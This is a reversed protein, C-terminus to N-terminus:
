ALIPNIVKSCLELHSKQSWILSFCHFACTPIIWSRLFASGLHSKPIKLNFISDKHPYILFTFHTKPKRERRRSPASFLLPQPRLPSSPSLFGKKSSSPYWNIKVGLFFIFSFIFKFNSLWNGESLSLNM